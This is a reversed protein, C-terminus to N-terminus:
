RKGAVRTTYPSIKELDQLNDVVQIVLDATNVIGIDFFESGISPLDIIQAKISHHNLTGVEPDKTTFPYTDIKPKANTIAALLSSKGSNPLGLLICQFGEKRIGKKSSKGSKKAKEQKEQMKKLRQKLNAVFSESSKHKPAARIM